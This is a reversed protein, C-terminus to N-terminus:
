KTAKKLTKKPTTDATSAKCKKAMTGGEYIRGNICRCLGSLHIRLKGAMCKMNSAKAVAKEMLYFITAALYLTASDESWETMKEPNPAIWCIIKAERSLKTKQALFADPLNIQHMPQIVMQLILRFTVRDVSKRVEALMKSVMAQWELMESHCKLLM